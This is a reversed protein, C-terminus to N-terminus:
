GLWANKNGKSLGNFSNMPKRRLFALHEIFLQRSGDGGDGNAKMKDEEDMEVIANM